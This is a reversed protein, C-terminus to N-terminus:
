RLGRDCTSPDEGRLVKLTVYNRLYANVLDQLWVAGETTFKGEADVLQPRTQPAMVLPPQHPQVVVTCGSLIWGCLFLALSLTLWAQLRGPQPRLRHLRSRM